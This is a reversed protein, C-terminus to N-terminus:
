WGNTEIFLQSKSDTLEREILVIRQHYVIIQLDFVALYSDGVIIIPM